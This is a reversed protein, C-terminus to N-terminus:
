AAGQQKEMRSLWVEVGQTNLEIDPALLEMLRQDSLTVGHERASHILWDTFDRKFLASRDPTTQHETAIDVIVDIASNLQKALM